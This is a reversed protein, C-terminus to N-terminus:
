LRKLPNKHYCFFYWREEASGVVNGDSWERYSTRIQNRLWVTGIIVNVRLGSRGQEQTQQFFNVRFAHRTIQWSHPSMSCKVTDYPQAEKGKWQSVNACICVCLRARVCLCVFTPLYLHASLDHRPNFHVPKLFLGWFKHYLPHSLNRTPRYCPHDLCLSTLPNWLSAKTSFNQCM